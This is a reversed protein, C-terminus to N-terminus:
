GCGGRGPVPLLSPSSSRPLGQPLSRHRFGAGRGRDWAWGSPLLPGVESPEGPSHSSFRPIQRLEEESLRNKRIEEEPVFEVPETVMLPGSLPPQTSSQAEPTTTPPGAPSLGSTSPASPEPVEEAAEPHALPPCEEQFAKQKSEDPWLFLRFLTCTAFSRCFGGLSQVRVPRLVPTGQHYLGRLFAHRDTGQFLAKEIEM